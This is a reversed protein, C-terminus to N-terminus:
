LLKTFEGNRDLYKIGIHFYEREKIRVQTGDLTDEEEMVQSSMKIVSGKVLHQDPGTGIHGNLLGSALLLSVHGKHLQTPPQPVENVLTTGYNSIYNKIVNSRQFMQQVEEASIPGVRFYEIVDPSISPVQYLPEPQIDIVPIEKYPTLRYQMLRFALEQDRNPTKRKKAFIICKRQEEYEDDSLRYVRIDEYNNALKFCIQGDIFEKPTVFILIGGPALYRSVFNLVFRDWRMAESRREQERLARRFAIEREEVAKQIKKEIEEKRKEMEEKRKQLMEETLGEEGFDIMDKQAEMAEIRAREEAEFNPILFPDYDRFLDSFYSINIEPNAVVLSFADNTIKAPSKYDAECVKTFGNERAVRVLFSKNEIGYRSVFPSNRTIENLVEGRGCRIDLATCPKNEPFALYTSIIRSSFRSLLENMGYAYM